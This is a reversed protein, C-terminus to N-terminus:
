TDSRLSLMEADLQLCGAAPGDTGSRHHAAPQIPILRSDHGDYLNSCFFSLGRKM